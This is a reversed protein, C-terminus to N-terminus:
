RANKHRKRVVGLKDRLSKKAIRKRNEMRLAKVGEEILGLAGDVAVHDIPDEIALSYVIKGPKKTKKM